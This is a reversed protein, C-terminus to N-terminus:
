YNEYDERNEIELHEKIARLQHKILDCCFEIKAELMEFVNTHKALFHECRSGTGGDEGSAVEKLYAYQELCEELDAKLGHLREIKECLDDFYFVNM